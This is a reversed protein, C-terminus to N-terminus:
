SFRFQDPWFYLQSFHCIKAASKSTNQSWLEGRLSWLRVLLNGDFFVRNKLVGRLFARLVALVRVGAVWIKKTLNSGLFGDGVLLLILVM